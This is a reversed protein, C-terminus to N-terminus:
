FGSKPKVSILYHRFHYALRLLFTSASSFSQRPNEGGCAQLHFKSLLVQSASKLQVPCCQFHHTSSSLIVLREQGGTRGLM